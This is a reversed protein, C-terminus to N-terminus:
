DLGVRKAEDLRDAMALLLRERALEQGRETYHPLNRRIAARLDPFDLGRLEGAKLRRRVCAGTVNLVISACETERRRGAPM